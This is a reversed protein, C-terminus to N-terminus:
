CRAWSDEEETNVFGDLFVEEGRLPRLFGSPSCVIDRRDEGRSRRAVSRWAVIRKKASATAM